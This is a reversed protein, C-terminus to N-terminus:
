GEVRLGRGEFAWGQQLGQVGGRGVVGTTRVTVLLQDLTKFDCDGFARAVALQGKVRDEAVFGGNEVIRATEYPTSAKQDISLAYRFIPHRLIFYGCGVFHTVTGM